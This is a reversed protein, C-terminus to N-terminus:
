PPSTWPVSSPVPGRRQGADTRASDALREERREISARQLDLGTKRQHEEVDVLWGALSRLSRERPPDTTLDAASPPLGDWACAPLRFGRAPELAASGPVPVVEIMYRSAKSGVFVGSGL